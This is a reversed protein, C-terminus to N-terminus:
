RNHGPATTTTPIMDPSRRTPRFLTRTAVPDRASPNAGPEPIGADDNESTPTLRKRGNQPNEAKEAWYARREGGVSGVTKVTRDRPRVGAPSVSRTDYATVSVSGVDGRRRYVPFILSPHPPRVATPIIGM